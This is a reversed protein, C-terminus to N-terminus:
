AGSRRAELKKLVARLSEQTAESFWGDVMGEIDADTVEAYPAALSRRAFARTGLMAARPLTALHELWSSAADILDAAEVLDDVLGCAHAEEPSILAGRVMLGEATHAGVLRTLAMQIPGPVVLGVQVENLGMKFPGRVAIRRDCYLSLVAGGAPSHGSIAAVLPVPFRALSDLLAFFDRWFRAMAPRELALLAKLDLGASFVGPRGTLVVGAPRESATQELTERLTNVLTPDLANVPARALRLVRIDGRSETEIM